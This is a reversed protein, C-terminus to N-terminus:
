LDRRKRMREDIGIRIAQDPAAIPRMGIGRFRFSALRGVDRWREADIVSADQVQEGFPHRVGLRAFLNQDVIRLAKVLESSLSSAVFDDSGISPAAEKNWRQERRNPLLTDHANM